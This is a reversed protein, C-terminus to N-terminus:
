TSRCRRIATMSTSSRRQRGEFVAPIRPTGGPSLVLSRTTRAIEVGRADRSIVRLAEVQQNNLVPEVRLVEEGYRSHAEFHSAVWRLYDNFEM